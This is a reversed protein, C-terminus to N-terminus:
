PEKNGYILEFDAAYSMNNEFRRLMEYNSIEYVINLKHQIVVILAEKSICSICLM